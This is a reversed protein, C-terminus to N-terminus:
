NNSRVVVSDEEEVEKRKVYESCRFLNPRKCMGGEMFFRCPKQSDYYWYRCEVKM